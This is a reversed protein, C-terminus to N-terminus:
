EGYWMFEGSRKFGGGGYDETAQVTVLRMRHAADEPEGTKKAFVYRVGPEDEFTVAFLKRSGTEATETRSDTGYIDYYIRIEKPLRVATVSAIDGREYGYEECVAAAARSAASYPLGVTAYTFRFVAISAAVALVYLVVAAAALMKKRSRRETKM